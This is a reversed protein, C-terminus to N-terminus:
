PAHAMVIHCKFDLLNKPEFLDCQSQKSGSSKHGDSQSSLFLFSVRNYLSCDDTHFLKKAHIQCSKKLNFVMVLSFSDKRKFTFSSVRFVMLPIFKVALSISIRAQMILTLLILFIADKNDIAGLVASVCTRLMM